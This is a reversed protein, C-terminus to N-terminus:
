KTESTFTGFDSVELYSAEFPRSGGANKRMAATIFLEM